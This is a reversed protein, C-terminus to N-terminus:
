EPLPQWSPQAADVDATNPIAVEALPGTTYYLGNDESHFLIQTGTPSLTPENDNGPLDTFRGPLGGDYRNVFIDRGAVAPAQSSVALIEGEPDWAPELAVACDFDALLPNRGSPKVSFTHTTSGCPAADAFAAFAIRGGRNGPSPVSWDPDEGKGLKERGQGSTRITYLTGGASRFKGKRYVIRKGDPSFAPEWESGKTRTIRTKDSGDAKMTYVDSDFTGPAHQVFAIRKGNPSWSPEFGDNDIKTRDSGDAEITYLGGTTDNQFAILGPQGPFSGAAAAPLCLTAVLAALAIRVFSSPGGVM